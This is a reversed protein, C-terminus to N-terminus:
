LPTDQSPSPYTRPGFIASGIRVITAGEAIAADMDGSMGMSLTDLQPLETQLQQLLTRLAAFAQQQLQTDQSAAPIAMLGRLQLGPLQAVQRALEILTDPLCGSKSAEASINVQLCINLPQMNTPRQESLRRAVKLRDVSHVWHFHDAIQRTKNSQIPGIFHWEIALDALAAIKDLGEQLYNEGFAHQGAAFAQRLEDAQRTKSVALLQISQPPRGTLHAARTIQARVACINDVINKM